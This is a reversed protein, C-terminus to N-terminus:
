WQSGNRWTTIPPHIQSVKHGSWIVPHKELGPRASGSKQGPFDDLSFFILVDSSSIACVRLLWWSCFTKCSLLRRRLEGCLVLYSSHWNEVEKWQDEQTWSGDFCGVVSVGHVLGVDLSTPSAQLNFFSVQLHLLTHHKFGGDIQLFLLLLLHSSPQATACSVSM